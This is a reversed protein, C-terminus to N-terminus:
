KVKQTYTSLKARFVFRLCPHETCGWINGSSSIHVDETGYPWLWTKVVGWKNNSSLTMAKLHATGGSCSALLINKSTTSSFTMGQTNDPLGSGASNSGDGNKWCQILKFDLTDPDISFEAVFRSRDNFESGSSVYSGVFVRDNENRPMDCWSFSIESLSESKLSDTLNVTNVLKMGYKCGYASFDVGEASTLIQTIDFYDLGVSTSAVFLYKGYVFMGGAHSVFPKGDAGLLLVHVYSHDSGGVKIFSVRAFGSTKQYWSILLFLQDEDKTGAVGQSYWNSDSFDNTDWMMAYDIGDTSGKKKSLNTNPCANSVKESGMKNVDIKTMKQPFSMKNPTIM